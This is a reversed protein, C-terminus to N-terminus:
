YLVDELRNIEYVLELINICVKTDLYVQIETYKGSFNAEVIM